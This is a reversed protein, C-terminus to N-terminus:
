KDELLKAIERSTLGLKCILVDLYEKATYLPYDTGFRIRGFGIKRCYKALRTFEDDTLEAVGESEKDLAVASIDWIIKHRMSPHGLTRLELYVDLIEQTRLSFGGSTGFHAIQVEAFDLDALVSDALILMDRRGFKLHSNDFHLLVPVRHESAWSFITRVRELHESVTLYIQSANFHLKIGDLKLTDHCRMIEKMAADQLPDIGYYAKIRDPFRNRSSALYNNEARIMSDPDGIGIGYAVASHVYAMSILTVQEAGNRVLITDIDSYAEDPNSFPIGMDKWMRILDPSLIHVHHDTGPFTEPKHPKAPSCNLAISALSFVIWGKRIWILTM